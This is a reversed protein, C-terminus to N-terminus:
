LLLRLLLLLLKMTPFNRKTGSLPWVASAIVGGIRPPFKLPDRFASVGRVWSDRGVDDLCVVNTSHPRGIGGCVVAWAAGLSVVSVLLGGLSWGSVAWPAGLSGLSACLPGWLGRWARRLGGLCALRRGLVGLSWFGSGLSEGSGAGPLGLSRWRAGPTLLLDGSAGWPISSSFRRFHSFCLSSYNVPFM